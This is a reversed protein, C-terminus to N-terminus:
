DRPAGTDSAVADTAAADTGMAGADPDPGVCEVPVCGRGRADGTCRAGSGCAADSACPKTCWGSQLSTDFDATCLVAGNNRACQGGGRTCYRGVGSENGTNCTRVCPDGAGRPATCGANGMGMPAGADADGGPGDIICGALSEFPYYFMTFICMEDDSSEGFRVPRNHPNNWECTARLHTGPRITFDVPDLPQDGFPWPDIRYLTSLADRSAGAEFRVRTGLKHMHPFAAFVRLERDAMCDIVQQFGQARAPIELSFSGLAYIGAPTVRSPDPAYALNLGSRETVPTPRTNQLHYQILYQTNAPVRFGVNEPLRFERRGTGGAWIPRWSTRILVNCESFGEPEPATTQFLAVHHVLQGSLAQVATVATERNPSRFTYCYYREQGPQLTYPDSALQQGGAPPPGLGAEVAADSPPTAGSCSLLVVALTAAFPRRM